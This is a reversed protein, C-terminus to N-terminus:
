ITGAQYPSFCLGPPLGVESGVGVRFSDSPLLKSVVETPVMHRFSQHYYPLLFKQCQLLTGQTDTLIPVLKQLYRMVCRLFNISIGLPLVPEQSPQNVGKVVLQYIMVKTGELM